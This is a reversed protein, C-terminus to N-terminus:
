RGAFAGRNPPQGYERREFDAVPGFPVERGPVFAPSGASPRRGADLLPNKGVIANKEAPLGDTYEPGAFSEDDVAYWLNWGLTFTAPRSGAGVDVYGRLRSEAFVIVNNIFFGGAGAGRERNEEVIRAVFDGPHVVTNNAFVCDDCGSFVVAASGSREIVNAVMRIREAEHGADLPRFYPRGTHGGANLARQGIGTFRNGHILVDSSGGKTQVASGPMDAFTNGAIVGDHCGVMDIAEGQNCGAFRSREVYFHDVGSMKLCDNNGGDGIRSFSVDRLVIHSAPSDYSGGDDINIGHPVANRIDLGEIVVYRPDALHLGAAKGAADIVVEGDGVLAIPARATGQLRAISGVAGYTGAAIRVRTGPTAQELAAAIDRLPASRSGDGGPRASADVFLERVYSVGADFPQPFGNGAIAAPASWASVLLWTVMLGSKAIAANGRM